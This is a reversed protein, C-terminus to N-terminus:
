PARAVPRPTKRRDGSRASSPEFTRQLPGLTGTSPLSSMVTSSSSIAASFPSRSVPTASAKEAYASSTSWSRSTADARKAGREASATARAVRRTGESSRSAPPSRSATRPRPTSTAPRRPWALSSEGSTAPESSRAPVQGLRHLRAAVPPGAPRDGGPRGPPAGVPDGDRGRREQDDRPHQPELGRRGASRRTDPRRRARAPARTARARRPRPRRAGRATPTPSTWAGERAPPAREGSGRRGSRPGTSTAPRSVRRARGASSAPM